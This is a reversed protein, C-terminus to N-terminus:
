PTDDQLLGLFALDRIPPLPGYSFVSSGCPHEPSSGQEAHHLIPHQAFGTAAYLFFPGIPRDRRNGSLPFSKSFLATSPSPNWGDGALSEFRHRLKGELWSTPQSGTGSVLAM